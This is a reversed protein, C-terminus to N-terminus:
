PINKLFNEYISKSEKDGPIFHGLEHLHVVPNLYCQTLELAREFNTVKDSKGIIHLSHMNLKNETRYYKEFAAMAPNVSKSTATIIVFNFKIAERNFVICDSQRNDLAIKALFHAMTAGQSFGWVGDFPGSSQFINNLYDLSKEVDHVPDSEASRRYWGKSPQDKSADPENQSVDPQGFKPVDFPADFYVLEALNKISKRVGGTRDKFLAANQTYGHLMLIKLMKKSKDEIQSKEVPNKSM